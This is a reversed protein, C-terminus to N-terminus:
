HATERLLRNSLPICILGSVVLLIATLLFTTELSLGLRGMCWEAGGPGLYAIAWAGGMMLGSALTTRHPLLRQALSITLPIMAAFGIGSLVAMLYGVKIGAFPYLVIIPAFVLPLLVMPWKERGPKIIWSASVGGVAMGALMLANLNGNIPAGADAVAKASWMPNEMTMVREVWRLLLYALAMNVTFRTANVLFLLSVMRWRQAIEERNFTLERHAHHRHPAHRIAFHLWLACLLGPVMAWRLLDFGGHLATIRTVFISGTIGGIMGAVHFLSVGLSRRAGALHGMSAAGTPHFMGVGINGAVYLAMLSTFDTALGICSLCVSALALGFAGAARSDWRDSLWAAIPQSVGSSISGVGMLSATQVATLNCRVQLVLLLPGVFAAYVDVMAHSAVIAGARTVLRDGRTPVLDVANSLTQTL